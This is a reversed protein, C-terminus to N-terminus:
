FFVCLFHRCARGGCSRVAGHLATECNKDTPHDLYDRLPGSKAAHGLLKAVVDTQGYHCAYHLPTCGGAAKCHVNAEFELLAEVVDVGYKSAVHLATSGDDALMNVDADSELCLKVLEAKGGLAACYLPTHNRLSRSHLQEKTSRKRLAEFVQNHGGLCAWHVPTYGLSDQASLEEEQADPGMYNLLLDVAQTCGSIAACHLPSSCSNDRAKPNARAELLVSVIQIIHASDADGEPRFLIANHLPTRGWEDTAMIADGPSIQKAVEEPSFRGSDVLEHIKTRGSWAVHQSKIRALDLKLFLEARNRGSSALINSVSPDLIRLVAKMSQVLFARISINLQERGVKKDIESMIMEKDKENSARANAVDVQLLNEGLLMVTRRLEHSKDGIPDYRTLCGKETAMDFNLELQKTRMVEYLCWIRSLPVLESDLVMVVGKCTKCTLAINFPSKQLSEGLSVEHQLNAFSCIWFAPDESGVSHAYLELARIFNKFAHDWCHSVFYEVKQEPFLEAYSCRRSKTAPKIIAANVDHMNRLRKKRETKWEYSEELLQTSKPWEAEPIAELVKNKICWDQYTCYILENFYDPDPRTDIIDQLQSLKMGRLETPRDSKDRSQEVHVQELVILLDQQQSVAEDFKLSPISVEDFTVHWDSDRSNLETVNSGRRLAVGTLRHFSKVEFKSGPLFLAEAQEPFKSFRSVDVAKSNLIKFIINSTGEATTMLNQAVQIDTTASTFSPWEIEKGLHIQGCVLENKVCEVSITRYVIGFHPKLEDM